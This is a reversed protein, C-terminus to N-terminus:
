KIQSIDLDNSTLKKNLNKSSCVIMEKTSHNILTLDSKDNGSVLIRKLFLILILIMWFVKMLIVMKFLLVM